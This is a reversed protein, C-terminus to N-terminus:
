NLIVKDQIFNANATSIKVFYIGAAFRPISIRYNHMGNEIFIQNQILSRGSIDIMEITAEGATNANLNFYLSGDISYTKSLTIEDQKANVAIIESYTFAGDYDTQKLRYYISNFLDVDQDLFKYSQVENSNGAGVIRTVEEFDQTNIARELTFYDNNHETATQWKLIINEDIQQATFSILKVPLSQSGEKVGPTMDAVAASAPISWDAANFTSNGKSGGAKRNSIRVARSDLYEWDKGTGDENIVGFADVLIGTTHDGGYYIFYGDDGNGTVAGSVQDATKAYATNYIGSSCAVVFMTESLVTGSLQVDLWAGGNAQRCFYFTSTAFDITSPSANYLEVFRADANDSPDAVESILLDPISIAAVCSISGTTGTTLSGSAQITFNEIVDYQVDTWSYVGGVLNKSTLLSASTLTGSGSAKALSFSNTADLDMNGGADVAIVQVEFDSNEYVTTNPKNTTFAFRDATVVIKNNNGSIDTTAGGADSSAFTSGSSGDASAASILFQLQDNDTVQSNFTLYISFNVSGDDPAEIGTFSNFTITSGSVSTVEKLNDSVANFLAIAAINDYNTITLSLSTLITSLADADATGGGDQMTFEAVKISNGTTLGSTASYATYNINTPLTFSSTIIDSTSSNPSLSSITVDDLSLNQAVKTYTWRVYRTTAQLTYTYQTCTTPISSNTVITSYTIGDDSEEVLCTSTTAGSVKLYYSVENPNSDFYVEHYDGTADMKSGNSGSCAFITTYAVTNHDTWGTPTSNWITRDVPLSTQAFGLGIIFLLVILSISKKM